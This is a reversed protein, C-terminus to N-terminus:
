RLDCNRKRGAQFFFTKKITQFLRIVMTSLEYISTGAGYLFKAMLVYYVTLAGIVIIDAAFLAIYEGWPGLYIKCVTQFEPLPEGKKRQYDALKICQLNLKSEIALLPDHM